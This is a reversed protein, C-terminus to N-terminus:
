ILGGAPLETAPAAVPPPANELVPAAQHAETKKKNMETLTKIQGAIATVVAERLDGGESERKRIVILRDKQSLKKGMLQEVQEFGASIDPDKLLDEATQVKQTSSVEDGELYPIEHAPAELQEPPASWTLTSSELLSISKRMGEIEKVDENPKLLLVWQPRQQEKGNQDKTTFSKQEKVLKFCIGRISGKNLKKIWTLQDYFSKITTWSTTTIKFVGFPSVKPLYVFVQMNPKCQRNGKADNWDPCLPGACPRTPVVGTAHDMKDFWQAEGPVGDETPGNGKCRLVGSIAKGSSNKAGPRWWKLWTPIVAELDDSPFIVDIAKPAEGYVTAVQPADSLV